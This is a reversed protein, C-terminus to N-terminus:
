LLEIEKQMWKTEYIKDLEYQKQDSDPLNEIARILRTWCRLSAFLAAEHDM